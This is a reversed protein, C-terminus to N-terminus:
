LVSAPEQLQAFASVDGSSTSRNVTGPPAGQADRAVSALASLHEHESSVLRSPSDDSRTTAKSTGRTIVPPDLVHKPISPPAEASAEGAVDRIATCQAVQEQLTANERRLREIENERERLLHAYAANQEELDAILRKVKLRSRRAAERNRQARTERTSPARGSTEHSNSQDARISPQSPVWSSQHRQIASSTAASSHDERSHESAIRVSPQECTDGSSDEFPESPFACATKPSTDSVREYERQSTSSASGKRARMQELSRKQAREREMKERRQARNWASILKRDPSPCPPLLGRDMRQKTGTDRPDRELDASTQIVSTGTPHQAPWMMTAHPTGPVLSRYPSGISFGPLPSISVGSYPGAGPVTASDGGGYGYPNSMSAYIYGNADFNTDDIWFPTSNSSEPVPASGAVASGDGSQPPINAGLHYANTHPSIGTSIRNMNNKHNAALILTPSSSDVMSRHPSSSTSRAAAAAAAVLLTPSLLMGGSGVYGGGYMNLTPTAGAYLGRDITGNVTGVGHPSRGVNPASFGAASAAHKAAGMGSGPQFSSSNLQGLPLPTLTERYARVNSQSATHHEPPTAGPESATPARQRRSTPPRAGTVSVEQSAAHLDGEM